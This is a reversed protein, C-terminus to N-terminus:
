RDGKRTVMSSADGAKERAGGAIKAALDAAAAIIAADHRYHFLSLCDDRMLHSHAKSQRFRTMVM